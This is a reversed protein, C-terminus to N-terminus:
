VPGLGPRFGVEFRWVLRVNLALADVCLAWQASNAPPLPEPRVATNMKCNVRKLHLTHTNESVENVRTM